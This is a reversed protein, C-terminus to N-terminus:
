ADGSPLPGARGPTATACEADHGDLKLEEARRGGDGAGLEEQRGVPRPDEDVAPHELAAGVFRDAVPDREGVVRLGEVRYEQGM